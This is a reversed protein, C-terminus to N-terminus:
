TYMHSGHSQSMGLPATGKYLNVLVGVFVVPVINFKYILLLISVKIDNM